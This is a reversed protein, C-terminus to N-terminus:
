SLGFFDCFRARFPLIKRSNFPCALGSLQTHEEHVTMLGKWQQLYAAKIAVIKSDSLKLNQLNPSEENQNVIHTRYMDGMDYLISGPMLTDLDIPCIVLGTTEHFLVNNIKTDNHVIRSPVKPCHM